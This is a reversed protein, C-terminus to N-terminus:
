DCMLAVNWIVSPAARSLLQRSGCLTTIPAAIESPSTPRTITAIRVTATARCARPARATPPETMAMEQSRCGAGTMVIGSASTSMPAAIGETDVSATRMPGLCSDISRDIIALEPREGGPLGTHHQQSDAEGHIHEHGIHPDSGSCLREIRAGDLLRDGPERRIRDESIDGRDDPHGIRAHRRSIRHM